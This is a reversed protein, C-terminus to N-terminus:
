ICTRIQSCTQSILCSDLGKYSCGHLLIAIFLWTQKKGHSIRPGTVGHSQMPSIHKSRQGMGIPRADGQPTLGGEVGMELFGAGKCTYNM